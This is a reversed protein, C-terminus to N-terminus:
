HKKRPSEYSMLLRLSGIGLFVTQAFWKLQTLRDTIKKQRAMKIALFAEGFHVFVAAHYILQILMPHTYTVFRFLSGVFGMYEDPVVHPSYCGLHCLAMGSLIVTYVGFSAKEFYCTPDINNGM